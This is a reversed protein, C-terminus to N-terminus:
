RGELARAYIAMLGEARREPSFMAARARAEGALRSRFAADCLRELAAAIAGPEVEALLGDVEHRVIDKMAGANGCLVPKGCALAELVARCTGDNGEALWVKVDLARYAEVLAEGTRYGAFIVRSDLGLEAVLARIAPEGEGRGIVALKAEPRNRAIQAFGRVLEAHRREPKIRSVIGFLVEDDRVGLEDRLRGGDGPSFRQVDVRGPLVHVRERPVRHREILLSAYDTCPAIVADCARFAYSRFAGPRLAKAIEATRVLAPKRRLGARAMLAVSHDHSFRCHVLDAERMRARLRAADRPVEFGEPKQSLTLESMLPLKQEGLIQVLNGPRRTDCGLLVEHGAAILARADDLMLEAPGTVSSTSLLLLAKM